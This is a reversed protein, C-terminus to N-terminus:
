EWLVASFASSYSGSSGARTSSANARQPQGISAGGPAADATCNPKGSQRSRAPPKSGTCPRTCRAMRSGCRGCGAEELRHLVELGHAEGQELTSLVMTEPHGRLKDGNIARM